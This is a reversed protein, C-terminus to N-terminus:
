SAREGVLLFAERCNNDNVLRILHDAIIPKRRRRDHWCAKRPRDSGTLRGVRDGAQQQSL